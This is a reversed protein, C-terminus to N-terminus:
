GSMKKPLDPDHNPIAVMGLKSEPNKNQHFNYNLNSMWALDVLIIQLKIGNGNGSVFV